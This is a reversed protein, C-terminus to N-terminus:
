KVSGPRAARKGASDHLEGHAKSVDESARVMVRKGGAHRLGSRDNHIDGIRRRAAAVAAPCHGASRGLRSPTARLCEPGDGQPRLTPRRFAAFIAQV